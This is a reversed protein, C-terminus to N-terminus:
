GLDRELLSVLRAIIRLQQINHASVTEDQYAPNDQNDSSIKWSGDLRKHFRKVKLDGDFEFAYIQGSVPRTDATNGLVVDGSHLTTEMSDGRIKFIAANHKPVGKRTLYDASVPVTELVRDDEVYTGHGAAFEVDYVPVDHYEPATSPVGLNNSSGKGFQLWEPSCNLVHCLTILNKGSPSTHGSLWLSLTSKSLGIKSAVDVAKLGLEDM